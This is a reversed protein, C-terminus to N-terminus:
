MKPLVVSTITNFSSPELATNKTATEKNRLDQKLMDQYHNGIIDKWIAIEKLIPEGHRHGNGLIRYYSSPFSRSCEEVKKLADLAIAKTLKTGKVKKVKSSICGMTSRLLVSSNCMMVCSRGMADRHISVFKLVAAALKLANKAVIEEGGTGGKYQLQCDNLFQATFAQYQQDITPKANAPLSKLYNEKNTANAYGVQFTIVDGLKWGSDYSIVTPRAAAMM